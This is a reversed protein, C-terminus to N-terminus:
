PIKYGYFKLSDNFNLENSKILKQTGILDQYIKIYNEEKYIIYDEIYQIEEINSTEFLYTLEKTNEINSRYVKYNEKVKEYLYYYGTTKTRYCDVREYEKGNLNSSVTYYNFKMKPSYNQEKWTGNDYYQLGHDTNGVEVVNKAQINIEYQKKSATDVLYISNDVVGNIYSYMSIAKNSIIKQQKGNKINILYFEHFEYNENYDAVIYYNKVYASITKTYIDKEFLEKTKIKSKSNLYSIGKYSEIGFLMKRPFNDYVTMHNDQSLVKDNELYSNMSYLSISKVFQDLNSDKGQIIHYPYDIDNSKCIIDSFLKNKKAIPLLCTYQDDQYYKIDQITKTGQQLKQYTKFTFTLDNVKIEFYYYNPQKKINQKKIEKVSFEYDNKIIYKTEYGKSFNLFSIQLAIYIISLFILFKTLQNM